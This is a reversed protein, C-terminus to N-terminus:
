TGCSLAAVFTRLGRTEPLFLAIPAAQALTSAPSSTTTQPPAPSSTVSFCRTTKSFKVDNSTIAFTRQSRKGRQRRAPPSHALVVSLMYATFVCKQCMLGFKMTMEALDKITM